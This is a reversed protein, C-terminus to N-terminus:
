KIVAKMAVMDVDSRTMELTSHGLIRQLFFRRGRGTTAPHRLLHIHLRPVTSERRRWQSTLSPLTKSGKGLRGLKERYGRVTSPTKGETDCTTFYHEALKSLPIERNDMTEWRIRM